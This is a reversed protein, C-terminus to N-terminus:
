AGGKEAILSAVARDPLTIERYVRVRLTGFMSLLEAPQLM